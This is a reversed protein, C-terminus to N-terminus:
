RQVKGGLAVARVHLRRAVDRPLVKTVSKVIRSAILRRGEDSAGGAQPLVAGVVRGDRYWGVFDVERVSHTLGAFLPAAEADTLPASRGAHHRVSVLVLIISRQSRQLRRRDVDLFYSFAAENYVQGISSDRFASYDPVTELTM